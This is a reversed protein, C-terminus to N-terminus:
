AHSGCNTGTHVPTTQFVVCSWTEIYICLVHLTRRHVNIHASEACQVCSCLGVAFFLYFYTPLHRVSLYQTTCKVALGDWTNLCSPLIIRNAQRYHQSCSGHQAIMGMACTLLVAQGHSSHNMVTHVVKKGITPM